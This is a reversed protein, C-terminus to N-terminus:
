PLYRARDTEEYAVALCEIGEELAHAAVAMDEESCAEQDLMREAVELRQRVLKTHERAAKLANQREQSIQIQM